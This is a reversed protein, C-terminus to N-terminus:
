IGEIMHEIAAKIEDDTCDGCTGKPPMANFGKIAHQWMTDFGQSIRPAWDAADHLKPAGLVGVGHCAVCAKGYIQAGSRPGASATEAKAGAVHVKGIPLIRSKIDDSAADQSHAVFTLSLGVVM